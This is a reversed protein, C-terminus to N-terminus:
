SQSFDPFSKDIVSMNLYCFVAILSHGEWSETAKEEVPSVPRGREAEQNWTRRSYEDIHFPSPGQFGAKINWILVSSNQAYLIIM